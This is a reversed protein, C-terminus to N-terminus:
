EGLRREIIKAHQTCFGYGQITRTPKRSCQYSHWGGQDYVQYRCLSKDVRRAFRHGLDRESPNYVWFDIKGIVMGGM